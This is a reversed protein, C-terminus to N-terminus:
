SMQPPSWTLRWSAGQAEHDIVDTDVVVEVETMVIVGTIAEDTTAAVVAAVIMRVIANIRDESGIVIAPSRIKVTMTGAAADREGNSPVPRNRHLAAIANTAARGTSTVAGSAPGTTVVRASYARLRLDLDSRQVLRM